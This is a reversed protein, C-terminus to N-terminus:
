LGDPEYGRARGAFLFYGFSNGKHSHQPREVSMEPKGGTGSLAVGPVAVRQALHPGYLRQHRHQLFPEGGGRLVGRADESVHGRQALLRLVGRAGGPGQGRERPQEGLAGTLREGLLHPSGANPSSLAKPRLSLKPPLTKRAADRLGRLKSALAPLDQMSNRPDEKRSNPEFSCPGITGPGDVSKLNVACPQTFTPESRHFLYLSGLLASRTRSEFCLCFLQQLSTASVSSAGKHKLAIESTPQLSM